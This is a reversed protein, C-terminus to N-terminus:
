ALSWFCPALFINSTDLMPTPLIKELPPVMTNKWLKELPSGFTTVNTKEWKFSLFCSKKELSKLIRPPLTGRGVGM